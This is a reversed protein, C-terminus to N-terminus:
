YNNSLLHQYKQVTMWQMDESAMPVFGGDSATILKNYMKQFHIDQYSMQLHINKVNEDKMMAASNFNNTGMSKATFSGELAINKEWPQLEGLTETFLIESIEPLQVKHIRNPDILSIMVAVHVQLTDIHSKLVRKLLPNQVNQYYTQLKFIVGEHATLHEAMLGLDIAPLKM